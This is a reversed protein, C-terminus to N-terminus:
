AAPLPGQLAILLTIMEYRPPAPSLLVSAREFVSTKFSGRVYLPSVTQATRLYVGGIARIDVVM